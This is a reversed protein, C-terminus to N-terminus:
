PGYMVSLLLVRAIGFSRSGFGQRELFALRQQGGRGRFASPAAEAPPQRGFGGGFHGGASRVACVAGTAIASFEGRARRRVHSAPRPLACPPQLQDRAGGGGPRVGTPAM